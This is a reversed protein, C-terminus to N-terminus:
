HCLFNKKQNTKFEAIYFTVETCAVHKVNIAMLKSVFM